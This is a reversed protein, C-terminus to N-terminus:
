VCLSPRLRESVEDDTDTFENKREEDASHKTDSDNSAPCKNKRQYDARRKDSPIHPSPLAPPETPTPAETIDIPLTESADAAPANTGPLLLQLVFPIMIGVDRQSLFHVCMLQFDLGVEVAKVILKGVMTVM